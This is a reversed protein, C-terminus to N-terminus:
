KDMDMNSDSMAQGNSMTHTMSEGGMARGNPMLHTPAPKNSGGVSSAIAAAAIGVVLVAIILLTLARKTM